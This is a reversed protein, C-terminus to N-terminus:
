SKVQFLRGSKSRLFLIPIGWEVEKGLAARLSCRGYWVAEDVSYGETLGLYVRSAFEVAADDVMKCRMGIVAAVPGHLLM